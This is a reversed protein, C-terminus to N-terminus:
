WFHANGGRELRAGEYSTPICKACAGCLCTPPTRRIGPRRVAQKRGLDDLDEQAICAVVDSVTKRRLDLLFAIDNVSRGRVHLRVIRKRVRLAYADKKAQQARRRLATQM